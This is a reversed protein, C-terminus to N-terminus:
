ADIVKPTLFLRDEFMAEMREECKRLVARKDADSMMGWAAIEDIHRCCGTCLGDGAHLTCVNICPSPVASESM